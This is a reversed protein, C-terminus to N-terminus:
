RSGPAVARLVSDVMLTHGPPGLHVKDAVYLQEKGSTTGADHFAKEADALGANRDKAATRCAGALEAMTTWREVAPVTTILLVDAKGKTARRVRDIADVCTARFQEGRMGSDWDNGGFCITVLDPEPAEATWRPILVLNQRLQTGGIAPNVVTVKSKFDAAVRTQFLAPWNVTRNAWHRTDTLSDGMTVVTLSQGAKLKARTRALPDGTPKYDQTDAPITEELRLDDLTFSHAAYDRWYWWKGVWVASIKSPKNTGAPDLPVSRPGPLVPVLDHWAVTVKQWDTGKISFQYDFRVAFDDDYILQLGGGHNSGDGKVWFSFGAVKDWAPTGRLRSTFFTSQCGDAFDFRVAKGVKGDVLTATGKEKPPAFRITDMDDLIPGDAAALTSMALPVILCAYVLRNM